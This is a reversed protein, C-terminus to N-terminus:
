CVIIVLFFLALMVSWTHYSLRDGIRRGVYFRKIFPVLRSKPYDSKASCHIPHYQLLSRVGHLNATDIMVTM